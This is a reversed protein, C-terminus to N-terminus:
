WNKVGKEFLKKAMRSREEKRGELEKKLEKIERALDKMTNLTEEIQMEAVGTCGCSKCRTTVYVM